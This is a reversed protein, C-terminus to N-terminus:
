RPPRPAAGPQRDLLRRRDRGLRARRLLRCPRHGARGAQVAPDAPAVAAARRHRRRHHHLRRQARPAGRQVFARAGRRGARRRGAALAHRRLEVAGARRAHLRAGRDPGPALQHRHRGQLRLHDDRDRAWRGRPSRGAAPRSSPGTSTSPASTAASPTTSGPTTASASWRSSSTTSARRDRAVQADDVQGGRRVGQRGVHHQHAPDADRAAGVGAGPDPGLGRRRRQPRLRGGARPGRLHQRAPLIATVGTRVPGKGVDLTGEGQILTTHGVRVGGVDTIANYPGVPFRGVSFGLDRLRARMM